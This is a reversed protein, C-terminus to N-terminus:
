YYAQINIKELYHYVYVVNVLSKIRFDLHHSTVVHCSERAPWAPITIKLYSSNDKIKDSPLIFNIVPQGWNNKQCIEKGTDVFASFIFTVKEFHWMQM